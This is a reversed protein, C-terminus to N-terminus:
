ATKSVVRYRGMWDRRKFLVWYRWLLPGTLNVAGTLSAKAAFGSDDGLYGIFLSTAIMLIEASGMFTYILPRADIATRTNPIGFLLPVTVATSLAGYHIAAAIATPTIDSPKPVLLSLFHRPFFAIYGGAIVTFISEYIMAKRVINGTATPDLEIVETTHGPGSYTKSMKTITKTSSTFSLTDKLLSSM